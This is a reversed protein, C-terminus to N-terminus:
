YSTYSVSQPHAPPVDVPDADVSKTVEATAKVVDGIKSPKLHSSEIHGGVTIIRPAALVREAKGSPEDLFMSAHNTSDHRSDVKTLNPHLNLSFERIIM